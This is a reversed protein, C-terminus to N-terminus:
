MILMSDPWSEWYRVSPKTGVAARAASCRTPAPPEEMRGPLGSVNELTKKIVALEVGQSQGVAMALLANQVNFKGLLQLHVVENNVKFSTGYDSAAVERASLIQLSPDDIFYKPNLSVGWKEDAQCNFFLSAEHDDANVVAVKRILQRNIKKHFSSYLVRFLKIKAERYKEYSGHSELHEPSLNTFVVVDYNVGVHRYQAIGESSTEVVAYQCGARVM